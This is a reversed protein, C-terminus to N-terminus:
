PSKRAAVYYQAGLPLWTLRAELPRLGRLAHPFFIRYRVDAAAFGADRVRRRMTPALILKAHEDFVCTNVAHRTLPNLPNHEFVFLRGAPTLVRRIEALLAVHEDHPIHHFVCSALAVDFSDDAYPIRRGDFHRFEAASGLRAAGLELSKRSVDLCTVRTEPLHRAFFPVSYGVGAGFDLATRAVARARELEGAIDAVKYEAFYEPNEGSLKINAAHLDRYEDAFKDFEVEDM